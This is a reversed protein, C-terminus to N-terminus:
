DKTNSSIQRIRIDFNPRVDKIRKVAVPSLSKYKANSSIIRNRKEVLEKLNYAYYPNIQDSIM